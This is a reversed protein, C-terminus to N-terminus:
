FRKLVDKVISKLTTTNRAVDDSYYGYGYGYGYGYAHSGGLKIGNFIVNLKPFKHNRYLTDLNRIQEKFTVGYRVLYLTANALRALIQADTVLGVPPTDIFVEDFNDKLYEILSEIEPQILLESPNPPIPGSGIVFFNANLGSPQIIDKIEAKGILYNSLGIKNTLELYRSVKPKRLDLELLVTKKGSIALSAAINSSVFSKGEGSMSSTLLTVRGVGPSGKGHLFQMNTRIARFQEAIAKRSTTNVVIPESGEDHFIEGLIPTSTLKLIDSSSEVKDNLLDKIYIYVIPIIVGIIVCLVYIMPRKPKVPVKSAFAPDVIRSDAVASAFSLAAEEKKQLLYLYLSEKISQQRKISILQREQGPLKKISGQFQSDNGELAKKTSLLSQAINAINSKIGARTTEIQKVLPEVLPNDITTTALLEDRKLQLESLQTIQGLLVADNIGLISPLKERSSSSNVYRQIDQIVNIQLNIESLKADNVKVNDLFLGAESSIDTLGLNSKFGEVDKEVSTLEGTILKLREDIFDITSQTTRNKDSLSAENYVQVLTNLIDKGREPVTSQFSLNLVTSQKSALNVSLLDLCRDVVEDPDFVTINLKEEEWKHFDKNTEIKYVGFVNRQLQNLIGNIKRGTEKNELVYTNKSPFSLILTKGFLTKDMQIVDIRIPKTSYIDSNIVRGEVNYGIMLNLRDVVKLMLAKSRLIEIENEVVKQSGFIDLENLFDGGAAGSMGGKKDDKILLTTNVSYIQQAYRLYFFGGVMSLLLGLVFVPWHYKYKALLERINIRVVDEEVMATDAKYQETNIM